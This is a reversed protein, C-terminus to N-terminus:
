VGCLGECESAMFDDYNEVQTFDVSDLSKRERHLYGEAKLTGRLQPIERIARDIFVADEFSKPDNEKLWKWEMNTHYPCGVCASRPLNRGPYHINFWNYLQARTLNMDILPYRNTIWEDKSPKMRHAEDASIGMWMEVQIAKPARKGPKLNM